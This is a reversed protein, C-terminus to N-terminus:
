CVPVDKVLWTPQYAPRTPFVGWTAPSKTIPLATQRYLGQETAPTALISEFNHLDHRGQWAIHM